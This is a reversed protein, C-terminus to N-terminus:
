RTVSSESLSPEITKPKSKGATLPHVDSLAKVAEAQAAELEAIRAMIIPIHSPAIKMAEIAKYGVLWTTLRKLMAGASDLRIELMPISAIDDAESVSKGDAFLQFGTQDIQQTEYWGLATKLTYTQDEIILEETLQSM